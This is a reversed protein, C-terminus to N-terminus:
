RKADAACALSELWQTAAAVARTDDGVVEDPTLKGEYARGTRDLEISTALMIVSGDPLPFPANASTLGATEAGFSKTRARGRFAIAVAEGSSATKPGTLVAVPSAALDVQAERPDIPELLDRWPQLTGDRGKFAGIPEAGLFPRLAALMPWMNGGEDDRLDIIWGCRALPANKAIGDVVARSFARSADADAGSYAPMRVYGVTGRREVTAPFSAHGEHDFTEHNEPSVLFSHHDNLAALLAHIAPYVDAPQSAGNAMARLRPEVTAWDIDTARLANEKVAAIAADLVRTVLDGEAHRDDATVEALRVHRAQLEGNGLLMVGFVIETTGEPVFIRVSRRDSADGVILRDQSNEFALAGGAGDARLWIGAGESAARTTLDASLTVAKGIFPAADRKAAVAGFKAASDAKSTLSVTAGDDHEADGNASMEYGSGSGTLFWQDGPSPMLAQAAIFDTALMAAAFGFVLVLIARRKTV